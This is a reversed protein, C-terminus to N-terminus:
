NFFLLSVFIVIGAFMVIAYSFVKGNQIKRFYAAAKWINSSIGIPGKLDILNIDVRTWLFKSLQLLKNVFM